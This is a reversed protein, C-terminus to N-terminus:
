RTTQCLSVRKAALVAAVEDVLQQRALAGDNVAAVIAAIIENTLADPSPGPAQYLLLDEGAELAVVAAAPVTFGADRISLASLADTLVLGHFGLRERLLGTVVSKSLSAPRTTLGPVSANSVMIADIGGGIAAVFPKLGAGELVSLPLTAAPGYDTNGTAGGLGPFHKGVAAVGARQLGQAFALGDRTAITPNSSFSRTGDPDRANPGVGGDVDLVPALDMTVGAAHMRRGLALGVSEIAAPTMTAGMQRPSPVSGVLNAMRQVLGGEEDTMVLPAIGGRALRDLVALDSGLSPPAAGGFLVIGGTGVEVEHDLSAVDSEPGGPVLTQAALRVTKWSSLATATTCARSQAAGASSGRAPMRVNIGLIGGCLALVGIAAM